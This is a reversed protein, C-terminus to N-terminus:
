CMQERREFYIHAFFIMWPISTLKRILLLLIAHLHFENEQTNAILDLATQSDSEMIIYKYGLDWALQHGRWIASLESV